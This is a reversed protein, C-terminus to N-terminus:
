LSAPRPRLNLISSSVEAGDIEIPARQEGWYHQAPALIRINMGLSRYLEILQSSATSIARSFARQRATLWGRAFLGALVLHSRTLRYRRPVIIRGGEFAGGPPQVRIGFDRETPLLRGPMPFILRLSGIIVDHDRCVVYSAFDDYEDRECGDPYEEARAWGMEVVCEFRMRLVTDIDVETHAIEFSLPELNDLIQQALRDLGDSTGSSTPADAKPQSPTLPAM